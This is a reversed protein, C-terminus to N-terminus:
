APIVLNKPLSLFAEKETLFHFLFNEKSRNLNVFIQILVSNFLIRTSKLKFNLFYVTQFKIM